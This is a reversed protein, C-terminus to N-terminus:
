RETHVRDGGRDKANRLAREARRVLTDLSRDADQRSAVGASVRVPVATEGTPIPVAGARARVREAVAEASRVDATPLLCIFKDAWYRALVDEARLQERCILAFRTLVADGAASGHQDNVRQFQDLDFMILSLPDHHRTARAFEREGVDFFASRNLAGTLADARRSRTLEQTLRENEQRLTRREQAHEVVARLIEVNPFPKLIYDFADGERLAKVTISLDPAGTLFIVEIFPDAAKAARLVELGNAGPMLVDTLVVDYQGTALAGVTAAGDPCAQVTYGVSTFYRVLLNRISEDDEAILLQGTPPAM